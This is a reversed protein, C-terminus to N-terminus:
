LLSIKSGSNESSSKVFGFLSVFFLLSCYGALDDKVGQAADPAKSYSSAVLSTEWKLVSFASIMFFEAVSEWIGSDSVVEIIM